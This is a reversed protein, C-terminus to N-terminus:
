ISYMFSQWMSDDSLTRSTSISEWSWAGSSTLMEWWFVNWRSLQQQCYFRCRPTFLLCAIFLMVCLHYHEKMAEGFILNSCELGAGRIARTVEELSRFQDVIANIHRVNYNELLTNQHSLSSLHLDLRPNKSSHSSCCKSLIYILLVIVIVSALFEMSLPWSSRHFLIWISLSNM